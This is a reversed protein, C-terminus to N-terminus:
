YAIMLYYDGYKRKVSVGSIQRIIKETNSDGKIGCILFQCRTKLYKIWDLKRNDPMSPDDDIWVIIRSSPTGVYYNYYFLERMIGAHREVNAKVRAIEEVTKVILTIPYNWQSLEIALPTSYYGLLLIPYKMADLLRLPDFKFNQIIYKFIPERVRLNALYKEDPLYKVSQPRRETTPSSDVWANDPEKRNLIKFM